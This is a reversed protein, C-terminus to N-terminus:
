PEGDEFRLIECLENMMEREVSAAIAEETPTDTHKYARRIGRRTAEDVAREILAFANLRVRARVAIRGVGEARAQRREADADLDKGGLDIKGIKM